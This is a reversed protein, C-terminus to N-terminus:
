GRLRAFSIFSYSVLCDDEFYLATVAQTHGELIRACVGEKSPAADQSSRIGNPTVFESEEEDEEAIDNLSVDGWSDEDVRRLDWLRINGDAGGTLCIHDEVQVCHVAGVHGRLRGIEDGTLLDWM